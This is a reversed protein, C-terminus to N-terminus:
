PQPASPPSALKPKQSIWEAMRESRAKGEALASAPDIGAATCAMMDALTMEKPKASTALFVASECANVQQALAVAAQRASHQKWLFVGCAAIVFAAAICVIIKVM